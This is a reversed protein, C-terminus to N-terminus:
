VIAFTTVIKDQTNKIVLPCDRNLFLNIDRNKFRNLVDIIDDVSVTYRLSDSGSKSKFTKGLHLSNGNIKVTVSSLTDIIFEVENSIYMYKKIFNLLTDVNVIANHDYLQVGDGDWDTYLEDSYFRVQERNIFINDGSKVIKLQKTSDIDPLRCAFTFFNEDCPDFSDVTFSSKIAILVSKTASIGVVTITNFIFDIIFNVQYIDILPVIDKINQAIDAQIEFNSCEEM